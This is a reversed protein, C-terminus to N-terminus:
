VAARHQDTVDPQWNSILQHLDGADKTQVLQERLDPDSFM